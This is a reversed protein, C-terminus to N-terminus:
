RWPGPPITDVLAYGDVLVQFHKQYRSSTDQYDVRVVTM